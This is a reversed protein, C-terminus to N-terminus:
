IIETLKLELFIVLTGQVRCWPLFSAAGWGSFAMFNTKLTRGVEGLMVQM